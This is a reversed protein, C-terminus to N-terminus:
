LSNSWSLVGTDSTSRWDTETVASSMGRTGTNRPAKEALKRVRRSDSMDLSAPSWVM